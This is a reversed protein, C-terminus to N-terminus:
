CPPTLQGTQETLLANDSQAITVQVCAHRTTTIPYLYILSTITDSQLWTRSNKSHIARALLLLASAKGAGQFSRELLERNM